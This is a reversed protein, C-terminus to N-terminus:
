DIDFVPTGHWVRVIIRLKQRIDFTLIDLYKNKTHRLTVVTCTGEFFEIDASCDAGLFQMVKGEEARLNKQM